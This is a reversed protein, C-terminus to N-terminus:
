RQIKAIPIAVLISLGLIMIIAIYDVIQMSFRKPSAPAVETKRQETATLRSTLTDAQTSITRATTKTAQKRELRETKTIRGMTDYHTVFLAFSDLALTQSLSLSEASRALTITQETHREAQATHKKTKCAALLCLAALLCITHKM